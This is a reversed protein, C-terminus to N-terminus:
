KGLISIENNLVNVYQSANNVIVFVYLPNFSNKNKYHFGVLDV